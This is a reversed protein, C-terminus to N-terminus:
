HPRSRLKRLEAKMAALKQEADKARQNSEELAREARQRRRTESSLREAESALRRVTNRRRRAEERRMRLEEDARQSAKAVRAKLQEVMEMPELLLTPGTWLFVQDDRLEFDIGLVKSRLRGRKEPIRSYTRSGRAKLRYGLLQERARDYIFYEPVGLRAYRRVNYVADKKRDGGSHVEMVWDLGKGEYSVLWKERSHPEVDFVVLLDPAFRREGPYYVPLESGIYMSRKRRDFHGRLIDLVRHRADQHRDGEPPSMERDTVEGPLSEVVEEREEPGM